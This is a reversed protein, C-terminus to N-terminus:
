MECTMFLYLVLSGRSSRFRNAFSTHLDSMHKHSNQVSRNGRLDRLLEDSRVELGATDVIRGLNAFLVFLLDFLIAFIEKVFTDVLVVLMLLLFGGLFGIPM